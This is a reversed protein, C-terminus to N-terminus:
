GLALSTPPMPPLDSALPPAANDDEDARYTPTGDPLVPGAGPVALTSDITDTTITSTSTGATGAVVTTTSSVTTGDAAAAAADTAPKNAKLPANEQSKGFLFGTASISVLALLGSDLDPLNWLKWVHRIFYFGVLLNFLLFQIRAISFRNQEALIDRWFGASPTHVTLPGNVAVQERSLVRSFLDSGLSVGLLGLLSGPLTTLEGTVLYCLLYASVILFTWFALQVKSLSFPVTEYHQGTLDITTTQTATANALAGQVVDSRLLNSHWGLYLLLLLFAAVLAMGVNLETARVLELHIPRPNSGGLQGNDFGVGIHAEHALKNRVQYFLQWISETSADRRLRFRVTTTDRSHTSDVSGAEPPMPFAVGDVFLRLDEPKRKYYGLAQRLGLVKLRVQDELQLTDRRKGAMARVQVVQVTPPLAKTPAATGTPAAVATGAATAAGNATASGATPSGAPATQAPALSSKGVFCVLLFFARFFNM